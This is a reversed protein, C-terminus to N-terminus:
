LDSPGPGKIFRGVMELHGTQPFLDVTSLETLRWGGSEFVAGDRGLSSPNCAVYVLVDGQCRALHRAVKPHLGARPPDVVIARGEEILDLGHLLQEVRGVRYDAKDIGNRAANARADVIAQEVEEIGIIREFRHALFLGISGVGCYLDYLTGNCDGLAGEITGYLIQAGTTSTQFFSATSLGFVLPGSSHLEETLRDEGWVHRTVGKAVDAVGDFEKWVVGALRAGDPLPTSQLEEVLREVEGTQEVDATTTFLGVLLEQTAQGVRLLLYRWFGQHARNDWLPSEGGLVHKRVTTLLSNPGDGVLHCREVDVVRDFREPAHFGLFRGEIPLGRKMDAECLYRRVGFSIEVKNRYGYALESGVIPRVLVSDLSHGLGQKVAAIGYSEKHERQAQLQLEQLVCGGCVGFAVCQPKTGRAPPRVLGLRRGRHIRKKKGAYQIKVRSGPPAGRVLIPAGNPM